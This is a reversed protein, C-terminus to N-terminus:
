ADCTALLAIAYNKGSEKVWTNTLLLTCILAMFNLLGAGILNIKPEVGFHLAYGILVCSLCYVIRGVWRLGALNRRFGYEILETIVVPYLKEDRRQEKLWQVASSYIEDAAALDKQEDALSPIQLLNPVNVKLYAHYRAKTTNPIEDNSHRLLITTPFGGWSAVLSKELRKGTSRAVSALLYLLGSLVTISILIGVPNSTLWEPQFAIVTIVAPLILLLVPYVRAFLNYRDFFKTLDM